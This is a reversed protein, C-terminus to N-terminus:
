QSIIYWHMKGIFSVIVAIAMMKEDKATVMM